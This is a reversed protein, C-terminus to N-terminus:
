RGKEPTWPSWRGARQPSAPSRMNSCYCRSNNGRAGRGGGGGCWILWYQVINVLWVYLGVTTSWATWFVIAMIAFALVRYHPPAHVSSLCLGRRAPWLRGSHIETPDELSSRRNEGSSPSFSAAPRSSRTSAAAACTTATRTPRRTTSCVPLLKSHRTARKHVCSGLSTPHFATM